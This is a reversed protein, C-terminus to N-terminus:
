IHGKKLSSQHSRAQQEPDMVSGEGSAAREKVAQAAAERSGQSSDTIALTMLRNQAIVKQNSKPKRGGHSPKDTSNGASPSEFFLSARSMGGDHFPNRRGSAHSIDLNRRVRICEKRKKLLRNEFYQRM